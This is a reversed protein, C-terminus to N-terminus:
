SVIREGIALLNGESDKFWAGRAGEIGAISNVTKFDPQDYEEFVLGNGRLEAVVAEIDDVDWGLQTHTGAAKGSSQFLLFEGSGCRYRLGEPAEEFPKLGLKDSYFSKARELDQAPITASVKSDALGLPSEEGIQGGAEM